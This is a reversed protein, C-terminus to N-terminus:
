RKATTADSQSGPERDSESAHKLSIALLGMISVVALAIVAKAIGKLKM